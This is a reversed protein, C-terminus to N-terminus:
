VLRMKDSKSPWCSTHSNYRWKKALHSCFFLIYTIICKNDIKNVHCVPLLHYQKNQIIIENLSWYSTLPVLSNASSLAMETCTLCHTVKDEMAIENCCLHLFIPLLSIANKELSHRVCRIQYLTLPLHM